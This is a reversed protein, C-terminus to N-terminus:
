AQASVNQIALKFAAKIKGSEYHQVAFEKAREGLSVRLKKDSYLASIAAELNESSNETVVYAWKYKKAHIAVATGSASFVLIPTGSVMYESAKTPMSYKLFSIATKDFDNPLLLLDAASFVAPLQSYSVPSCLTVFDFKGLVRMVPHNTTSQIQFEIKLGRKIQNDIALAVALLCNQIGSGIRGAYLIKFREKRDYV